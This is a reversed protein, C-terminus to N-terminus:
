TPFSNSQQETTQPRRKLHFYYKMQFDFDSEKGQTTGRNDELTTDSLLHELIKEPTGSVVMYRRTRAKERGGGKSWASQASQDSLVRRLILVDHGRERVCLRVAEDSQPETTMEPGKSHNQLFRCGDKALRQVLELRSVDEKDHLICKSGQQMAPSMSFMYKLGCDWSM